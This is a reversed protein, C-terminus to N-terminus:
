VTNRLLLNWAQSLRGGAANFIYLRGLFCTTLCFILRPLAFLFPPLRPGRAEKGERGKGERAERGKGKCFHISKYIHDYSLDFIPGRNQRCEVLFKVLFFSSIGGLAHLGGYVEFYEINPIQASVCFNDYSPDWPTGWPLFKAHVKRGYGWLNKNLGFSGM